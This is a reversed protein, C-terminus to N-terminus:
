GSCSSIGLVIIMLVIIGVLAIKTFDAGSNDIPPKYNTIQTLVLNKELKALRKTETVSQAPARYFFNRGDVGNTIECDEIPVKYMGVVTVSEGDIDTIRQIDSTKNENDFVILVDNTEEFIEEKKRKFLM